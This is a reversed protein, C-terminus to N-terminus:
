LRRYAHPVLPTQGSLAAQVLDLGAQKDRPLRLKLRLPNSAHNSFFLGSTLNTAELMWALEQLLGQDNQPLFDGARLRQHLPTGPVIMLALAAAQEPDMQSLARGTAEAHQKARIGCDDLNDVGSNIRAETAALHLLLNDPVDAAIQDEIAAPRYNMIRISDKILPNLTDDYLLPAIIAGSRLNHEPDLELLIHLGFRQQM